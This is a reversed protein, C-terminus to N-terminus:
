ARLWAAPLSWEISDSRVDTASEPLRGRIRACAERVRAGGRTRVVIRWRATDAEPPHIEFGTRRGPAEEGSNWLLWGLAWPLEWGNGVDPALRPLTAPGELEGGQHRLAHRVLGVLPELGRAERRAMLLDAGLECGLVGLIWGHDHADRAARSLDDGCDAVCSELVGPVGSIAILLQTTNNVSHLLMPLLAEALTGPGPASRAAHEQELPVRSSSPDGRM